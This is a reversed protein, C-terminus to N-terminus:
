PCTDGGDVYGVVDAASRPAVKFAGFSFFLPGTASEITDGVTLTPTATVYNFFEDDILVTPTTTGVVAVPFENFSPTATMALPCADTLLVMMSEYPEATAPDAAEAVSLTTTPV